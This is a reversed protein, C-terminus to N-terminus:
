SNPPVKAGQIKEVTRMAGLGLMGLLVPMMGNLDLAPLTVAHGVLAAGFTLMPSLVYSWGFAAGCAWGIGPRWGAVWVSQNAAEAANIVAQNKAADWQDQVAQLQGQIQAQMLAAHAEMAKTKDPFIRDIVGSAFDFIEGLGTLSM